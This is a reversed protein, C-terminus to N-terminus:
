YQVLSRLDPRHDAIEGRRGVDIERTGAHQTCEVALECRPANRQLNNSRPAGSAIQQPGINEGLLHAVQLAGYREIVCDAVGALVSPSSGEEPPTRKPRTCDAGTALP